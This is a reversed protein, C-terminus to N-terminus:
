AEAPDECALVGPFCCATEGWMYASEATRVCVEGSLKDKGVLVGAECPLSM